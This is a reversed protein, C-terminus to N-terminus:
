CPADSAGSTPFSHAAPPDATFDVMRLQDTVGVLKFLRDVQGSGRILVVRRGSRLARADADIIAHLGTSDMFTLERLDIIVLLAHELAENLTQKFEPASALDLEGRIGIWASGCGENHIGCSFEPAALPQAARPPPSHVHSM